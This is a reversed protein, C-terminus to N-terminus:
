RLCQVSPFQKRIHRRVKGGSEFAPLKLRMDDEKNLCSVGVVPNTTDFQYQNEKRNQLIEKQPFHSHLRQEM